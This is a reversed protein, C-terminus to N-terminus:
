TLLWNIAAQEGTFVQVMFGIKANVSNEFLLSLATSNVNDVLLSQKKGRLVQNLNGLYEIIIEMEPISIDFRSNRYDSLLNYKDNTFESIQLLELWAAGIDDAVIIGEHKYRIIKLNHDIIIEYTM